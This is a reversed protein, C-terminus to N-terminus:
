SILKLIPVKKFLGIKPFTDKFPAKSPLPKVNFLILVLNKPVTESSFM